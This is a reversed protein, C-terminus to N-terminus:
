DNKRSFEVDVVQDHNSNKRHSQTSRTNPQSRQNQERGRMPPLKNSHGILYRIFGRIIFFFFTFYLIKLFAM